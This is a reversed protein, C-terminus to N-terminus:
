IYAVAAEKWTRELENVIKQLTVGYLRTSTRSMELCSREETKPESAYVFCTVWLRCAAIKEKWIGELEGTVSGNMAM